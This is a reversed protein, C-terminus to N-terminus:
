LKGLQKLRKRFATFALEIDFGGIFRVDPGTAFETMVREREEPSKQMVEIVKLKYRDMWRQFIAIYTKEDFRSAGFTLYIGIHDAASWLGLVTGTLVDTPFHNDLMKVFSHIEDLRESADEAIFAIEYYNKEEV